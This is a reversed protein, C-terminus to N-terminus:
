RLLKKLILQKLSTITIDAGALYNTGDPATKPVYVSRFTDWMDEGDQRLGYRVGDYRSLNASAEATSIIYYVPIAYQTHPLSIEVIEVGLQALQDIAARITSEVEADLGEIFYEAPVGVKLGKLYDGRKMEAVYDPATDLHELLRALTWGTTPHLMAPAIEAAPELVFRRWAM